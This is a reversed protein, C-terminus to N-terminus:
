NQRESKTTTIILEVITQPDQGAGFVKELWGM